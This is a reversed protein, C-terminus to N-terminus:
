IIFLLGKVEKKTLNTKLITNIKEKSLEINRQKLKETIKDRITEIQM